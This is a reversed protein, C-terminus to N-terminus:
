CKTTTTPLVRMRVYLRQTMFAIMGSVCVRRSDYSSNILMCSLKWVMLAENWFSTEISSFAYTLPILVFSHSSDIPFPYAVSHENAVRQIHTAINARLLSRPKSITSSKISSHVAAHTCIWVTMDWRLMSDGIALHKCLKCRKSTTAYM